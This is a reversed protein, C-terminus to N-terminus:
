VFFGNSGSTATQSLGEVVSGPGTETTFRAAIATNVRSPM